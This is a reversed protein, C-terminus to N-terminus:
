KSAGGEPKGVSVALQTVPVRARVSGNKRGARLHKRLLLEVEPVLWM